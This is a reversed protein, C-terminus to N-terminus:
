IKTALDELWQLYLQSGKAPVNPAFPKRHSLVDAYIDDFDSTALKLHKCKEDLLVDLDKHIVERSSKSGQVASLFLRYADVFNHGQSLYYLLLQLENWSSKPTKSVRFNEQGTMESVWNRLEARQVENAPRYPMPLNWVIDRKQIDWHIPHHITHCIMRTSILEEILKSLVFSTSLEPSSDIIFLCFQHIQSEQPTEDKLIMSEVIAVGYKSVGTASPPLANLHHGSYNLHRCRECGTASHCQEQTVCEKRQSTRYFNKGFFWTATPDSLPPFCSNHETRRIMNFLAGIRPRFIHGYGLSSPVPVYGALKNEPFSYLALTTCTVAAGFVQSPDGSRLCELTERLIRALCPRTKCWISRYGLPDKYGTYEALVKFVGESIAFYTIQRAIDWNDSMFTSFELLAFFSTKQDVGISSEDRQNVKGTWIREISDLDEGTMKLVNDWQTPYNIIKKATKRSARTNETAGGALQLLIRINDEIVRLGVVRSHIVSASRVTGLKTNPLTMGLIIEHDLDITHDISESDM